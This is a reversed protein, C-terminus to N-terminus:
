LQTKAIVGPRILDVNPGAVRGTAEDQEVSDITLKGLFHGSDDVLNFEMGKVVSENAGVSVTAYPIDHIRRFDRIVGSIPPAGAKLGAPESTDAINNDRLLSSQKDLRGKAETLQESLFQRERETVDLKNSLDTVTTNLQANQTLKDDNSQRLDAIEQSYRNKTVESAQLAETLRLVDASQLAYQQSNQAKQATLDSINAQLQLNAQKQQDLQSQLQQISAASAAHDSERGQEAASARLDASQKANKLDTVQDNLNPITNAYVVVGAVVLMELLVNLVVFLKTVPSL